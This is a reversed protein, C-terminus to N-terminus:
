PRATTTEWDSSIVDLKTAGPVIVGEYRYTIVNGEDTYSANLVVALRSTRNDFGIATVPNLTSSFSLAYAFPQPAIAVYRSDAAGLPQGDMTVEAVIHVNAGVSSTNLLQITGDIKHTDTNISVESNGAVIIPHPKYEPAPKPKPRKSPPSGELINPKPAAKNPANPIGIPTASPDTTSPQQVAVSGSFPQLPVDKPPWTVFALLFVLVGIVLTASFFRPYSIKDSLGVDAFLNLYGSRQKAWDSDATILVLFVFLAVCASIRVWPAKPDLLFVIITVIIGVWIGFRAEKSLIVTVIYYM